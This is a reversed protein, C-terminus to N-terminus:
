APTQVFFSFLTITVVILGRLFAQPFLLFILVYSIVMIFIFIKWLFLCPMETTYYQFIFSCIVYIISGNFIICFIFTGLMVAQHPINNKGKWIMKNTKM